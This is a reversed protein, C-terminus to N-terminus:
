STGFVGLQLTEKVIQCGGLNIEKDSSIGKGLVNNIQECVEENFLEQLKTQNWGEIDM